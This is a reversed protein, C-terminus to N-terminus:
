RMRGYVKQGLGKRHGVSRGNEGTIEKRRIDREVSIMGRESKEEGKQPEGMKKPGKQCGVGKM